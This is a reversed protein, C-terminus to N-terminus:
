PETLSILKIRVQDIVLDAVALIHIIKSEEDGFKALGLVPQILHPRHLILVVSCTRQLSVYDSQPLPFPRLVLVIDVGVGEGKPLPDSSMLGKKRPTYFIQLPLTLSPPFELVGM